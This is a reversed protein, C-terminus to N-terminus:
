SYIIKPMDTDKNAVRRYIVSCQNSGFIERVLKGFYFYPMLLPMVEIPSTEIAKRIYRTYKISHTYKSKHKKSNIDEFGSHISLQDRAISERIADENTVARFHVSLNDLTNPLKHQIQRSIIIIYHITMWSIIRRNQSTENYRYIYTHKYETQHNVTSRGAPRTRNRSTEIQMLSRDRTLAAKSTM